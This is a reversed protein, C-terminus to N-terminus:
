KVLIKKNKADRLSKENILIDDLIGSLQTNINKSFIIEEEYFDKLVGHMLKMNDIQM